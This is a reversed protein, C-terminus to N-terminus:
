SGYGAGWFLPGMIGFQRDSTYVEIDERGKGQPLVCQPLECISILYCADEVRYDVTDRLFSLLKLIDSKTKAQDDPFKELRNLTEEIKKYLMDTAIKSFPAMQKQLDDNQPNSALIKQAEQEVFSKTDPFSKLEKLAKMRVNLPLTDNSAVEMFDMKSLELQAFEHTEKYKRLELLASERKKLPLADDTAQKLFGNIHMLFNQVRREPIGKALAEMSTYRAFQDYNSQKAKPPTPTKPTEAKRQEFLSSKVERHSGIQMTDKDSQLTKKGAFSADSSPIISPNRSRIGRISNPDAM